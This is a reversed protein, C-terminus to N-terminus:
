KETSVPIVAPNSYYAREVLVALVFVMSRLLDHMMIYTNIYRM